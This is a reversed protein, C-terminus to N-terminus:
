YEYTKLINKAVERKPLRLNMAQKEIHKHAQEETMSFNGILICKARDILKLDQLKQQLVKNERELEQIKDQQYEILAKYNSDM